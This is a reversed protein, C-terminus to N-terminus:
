LGICLYLLKAIEPFQMFNLMHFHMHSKLTLGIDLDMKIRKQPVEVKPRNPSQSLPKYKFNSWPKWPEQSSSM